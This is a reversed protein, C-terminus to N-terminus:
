HSGADSSGADLLAIASTKGAFRIEALERDGTRARTIMVSDYPSITPREILRGTASAVSRSGRYLHVQVRELDGNTAWAIHYVGAPVPKGDVVAGDSLRVERSGSFIAGQGVSEARVPAAVSVLLVALSGLRLMKRNM